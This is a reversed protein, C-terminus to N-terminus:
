KQKLLLFVSFVLGVGIALVDWWDFTGNLIPTLQLFEAGFALLITLGIWFYRIRHKEENWIILIASMLGFAWLGDPVNYIMGSWSPVSDKLVDLKPIGLPPQTGYWDYLLLGIAIPFVVFLIVKLFLM